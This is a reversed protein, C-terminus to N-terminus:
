TSVDNYQRHQVLSAQQHSIFVHSHPLQGGEEHIGEPYADADCTSVWCSLVCVVRCLVSHKLGAHLLLGTIQRQELRLKHAGTISQAPM